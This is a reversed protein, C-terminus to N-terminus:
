ASFKLEFEVIDCLFEWLAFIIITKFSPPLCNGGGRKLYVNQSCKSKNQGTELNRDYVCLM